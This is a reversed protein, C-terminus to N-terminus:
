RKTTDEVRALRREVSTLLQPKAAAPHSMERRVDSAHPSVSDIERDFEDIKSKIAGVETKLDFVRKQIPVSSETHHAVSYKLEGTLEDNHTQLTATLSELEILIRKGQTTSLKAWVDAGFSAAHVLVTM